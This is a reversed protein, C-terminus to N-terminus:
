LPARRGPRGANACAASGAAAPGRFELGRSQIAYFPFLLAVALAALYAGGTLMAVPRYRSWLYDLAWLATVGLLVWAQYYFKFVTNLRFSFNDKLYVFEPGLTLLLATLLLLLIFPTVTVQRKSGASPGAEPTLRRYLLAVVAAVM